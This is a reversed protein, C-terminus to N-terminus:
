AEAVKDRWLGIWHLGHRACGDVAERLTWRNITIQNLSLRGPDPAGLATL